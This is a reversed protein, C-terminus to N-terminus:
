YKVPVQHSSSVSLTPLRHLTPPLSVATAKLATHVLRNFESKVKVSTATPDEQM